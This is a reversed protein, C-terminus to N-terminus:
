VALAVAFELGHQIAAGTEADFVHVAEGPIAVPVQSGVPAELDRGAVAILFCGRLM